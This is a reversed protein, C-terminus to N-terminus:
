ILSWREKLTLVRLVSEDLRTEPIAGTEVAQILAQVAEDVDAPCLLMDVGAQIANVATEASTYTDTLAQMQLSDTMIVGDFGLEERLLDTVLAHSFPTPVSDVDPVILHGLMVADAGATIGAQFPLLETQRLEEMSKTVYASGHHTDATTSGHGPFHKLTCAVGGDHFGQVAAAVLQAAQEYHDSYARDGIVTNSPNSWVDAVPALDMNLGCSRMDQGITRANERAVEIGEDKYDLMPGIRTTGVTNMLRAVRGGEEDCTLLLPIKTMEQTAALMDRLQEQSQMNGTEYLFGGVPYQELAHRTEEGAEVATNAGTILAPQVILLQCVKERLTMEALLREIRSPTPAPPASPTQVPASTNNHIQGSDPAAGTCAGCALALLLSLLVLHRGIQRM